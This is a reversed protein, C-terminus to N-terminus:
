ESLTDKWLVETVKKTKSKYESSSFNIMSALSNSDAPATKQKVVTFAFCKKYLVNIAKRTMKTLAYILARQESM